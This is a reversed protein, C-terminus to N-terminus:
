KECNVELTQFFSMIETIDEPTLHFWEGRIRKHMFKEHLDQEIRWTGKWCHEIQITPKQAQLTRERFRPNTSFGIKHYDLSTDRMLYVFGGKAIKTESERYAKERLREALRKAESERRLEEYTEDIALTLSERDYEAFIENIKSQILVLTDWSAIVGRQDFIGDENVWLLEQNFLRHIEM